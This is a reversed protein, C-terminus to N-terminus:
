GEVKPKGKNLDNMDEKVKKKEKMHEDITKGLAKLNKPKYIDGQCVSKLHELLIKRSEERRQKNLFLFDEDDAIDVPPNDVFIIRKDNNILGMLSKNNIM